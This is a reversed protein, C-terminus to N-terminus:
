SEETEKVSVSARYTQVNSGHMDTIFVFTMSDDKYQKVFVLSKGCIGGVMVYPFGSNDLGKKSSINYCRLSKEGNHYIMDNEYLFVKGKGFDATVFNSKAHTGFSMIVLFLFILKKM